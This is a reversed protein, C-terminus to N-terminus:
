QVSYIICKTFIEVYNCVSIILYVTTAATNNCKRACGNNSLTRQQILSFYIIQCSISIDVPLSM